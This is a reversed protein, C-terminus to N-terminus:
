PSHLDDAAAAYGGGAGDLFHFHNDDMISPVFCTLVAQDQECIGFRLKGDAQHKELTTRLSKVQAESLSVTMRIGDQIKRYDTNLATVQRYHKPDFKGLPIGTKDLLWAILTVLYLTTKGMGSAKAELDLNKPPWKFGLGSKPLPSAEPTDAGLFKFIDDILQHDIENAGEVPELILSVIKSGEEEIPTWRCSLGSLDPSAEADAYAVEYRGAKMATEAWAIGGGIFAFNSLTDSVRVSTVLVDQGGAHIDAMPVIAARLELDLDRRVWSRTQSLATQVVDLDGPSFAIAAGDGGFIYPLTQHGLANMVASIMSVGAMNVAKYRGDKIAARSQVVDTVAVYWDSPIPKYNERPIAFVFQELVPLADVFDTTPSTVL